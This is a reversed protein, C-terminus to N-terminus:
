RHCLVLSDGKCTDRIIKIGFKAISQHWIDPTIFVLLLSYYTTLPSHHIEFQNSIVKETNIRRKDVQLLFLFGAVFLLMLGLVSFRMSGTISNVLGFLFTGSVIGVKSIVDYFSFFSTLDKTRDELLKAYTSRSLSQIGGLVMGVLGAITFFQWKATTAYAGFCILMWIGLQILLSTKNGWKKSLRAFFLAGPIAVLQLLLITIILETKEFGLEQSAFISALYIVTNVGAIYFFYSALYRKIHTDRKIIQWV